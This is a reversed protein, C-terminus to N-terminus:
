SLDGTVAYRLASSITDYDPIRDWYDDVLSKQFTPDVAVVAQWLTLLRENSIILRFAESWTEQTPNALVAILSDRAEGELRGSMNSVEDVYSM